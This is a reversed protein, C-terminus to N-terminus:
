KSLLKEHLEAGKLRARLYEIRAEYRSAVEERKRRLDEMEQGFEREDDLDVTLVAEDERVVGMPLHGSSRSLSPTSGMHALSMGLPLPPVPPVILGGHGSGSGSGSGGLSSGNAGIGLRSHSTASGVSSGSNKRRLSGVRSSSSSIFGASQIVPGGPKLSSGRANRRSTSSAATGASTASRMSSADGDGADSGKRRRSYVSRGDPVLTAVSDRPGTVATRRRQTLTTLELGSFADMLRRGEAEVAAIERRLAQATDPAETTPSADGEPAMGAYRSEVGPLRTPFSSPPTPLRRVSRVSPAGNSPEPPSSVNNTRRSSISMTDGRDTALTGLSSGSTKKSLRRYEAAGSTASFISSTDSYDHSSQRGTARRFFSAVGSTMSSRSHMSPTRQKDVIFNSTSTSIRRSDISQRKDTLTPIPAGNQRVSKSKHQSALPVVPIETPVTTTSAFRQFLDQRLLRYEDDNLLGQSNAVALENLRQALTTTVADTKRTPNPTAALSSSSTKTGLARSRSTSPRQDSESAQMSHRSTPSTNASKSRDARSQTRMSKLAPSSTSLKLKLQLQHNAIPTSPSPSLTQAVSSSSVFLPPPSDREKTDLKKAYVQFRSRLSKFASETLPAAPRGNNEKSSATDEAPDPKRSSFFGM